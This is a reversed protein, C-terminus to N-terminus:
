WPYGYQAIDQDMVDALRHNGEKFAGIIEKKWEPSFDVVNDNPDMFKGLFANLTLRKLLFYGNAFLSYYRPSMIKYKRLFDIIVSIPYNIYRNIQVIRENRIGVNEKAHEFKHSQTVDFFGLVQSVFDASDVALQEYPLVLVNTFGFLSTYRNVLADYQLKGRLRAEFKQTLYDSLCLRELGRNVVRMTYLSLIYELQNRVVILIKAHPFTQYLREAITFQNWIPDGDGRGSLTEQSIITPKGEEITCAQGLFNIFQHPDYSHSTALYTADLSKFYNTDLFPFVRKQLFTSGTKHYGIHLYVPSYQFAQVSLVTDGLQNSLRSWKKVGNETAMTLDTTERQM